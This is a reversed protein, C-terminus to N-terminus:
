KWVKRFYRILFFFTTLALVWYIVRITIPGAYAMRLYIGLTMFFILWVLGISVTNLIRKFYRKIEPDWGSEM